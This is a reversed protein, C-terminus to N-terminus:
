RQIVFPDFRREDTVGDLGAYVALTIAEGIHRVGLKGMMNARHIEITRSSIQLDSAMTKNSAGKALSLLVERERKSLSEFMQRAKNSRQRLEAFATGRLSLLRLREAVCKEIIPFPWYDMAGMLMVDAVRTGEPEASYAVVPVWCGRQSATNVIAAVTEDDDHVAIMGAQPWFTLLDDPADYPEVHCACSFLARTLQSRRAGDSDVVAVKLPCTM